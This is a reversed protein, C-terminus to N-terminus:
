KRADKKDVIVAVGDKALEKARSETVKIEVGAAFSLGDDGRFTRTFRVSTLKEAM